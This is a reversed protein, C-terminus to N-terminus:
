LGPWAEHGGALVLSTIRGPADAAAEECLLGVGDAFEATAEDLDGQAVRFYEVHDRGVIFTSDATALRTRGRCALDLLEGSWEESSPPAVRGVRVLH